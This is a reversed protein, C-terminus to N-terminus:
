FALTGTQGPPDAIPQALIERDGLLLAPRQGLRVEPATTVTITGTGSVPAAVISTLTPALAMVLQNSTRYFAEGSRQVLATVTYFGAPWDAPVNPITFTITTGDGFDPATEIPDDLRPHEFRLQVDDGALNVGTLTILENLRVSAQQKPPTLSELTPLPSI